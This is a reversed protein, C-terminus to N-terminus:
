KGLDCIFEFFHLFNSLLQLDDNRFFDLDFWSFFILRLLFLGRSRCLLFFLGPQQNIGTDSVHRWLTNVSKGSYAIMKPHCWEKDRRESEEGEGQRGSGLVYFFGEELVIRFQKGIEERCLMRDVYRKRVGNKKRVLDRM